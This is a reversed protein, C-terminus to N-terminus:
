AELQISATLNRSLIELKSLSLSYLSSVDESSPLTASIPAKIFGGMPPIPRNWTRM